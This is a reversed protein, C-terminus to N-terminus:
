RSKYGPSFGQAERSSFSAMALSGGGVTWSYCATKMMLNEVSYCIPFTFNSFRGASNGATLDVLTAPSADRSGRLSKMETPITCCVIDASRPTSLKPSKNKLENTRASYSCVNFTDRTDRELSKTDNIEHHCDRGGISRRTVSLGVGEREKCQIDERCNHSWTCVM